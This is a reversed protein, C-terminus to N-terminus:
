IMVKGLGSLGIGSVRCVDEVVLFGIGVWWLFISGSMIILQYDALNSEINIMVQLMEEVVADCM